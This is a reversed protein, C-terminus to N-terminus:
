KNRPKPKPAKKYMDKRGGAGRKGMYEKKPAAVEGSGKDEAMM